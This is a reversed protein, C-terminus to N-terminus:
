FGGSSLHQRLQTGESPQKRAIAGHSYVDNDINLNYETAIKEVIWRLSELQQSTPEDFTKNTSSFRGVVEIGISDDNSPYRNPYKKKVEHHSLNRARSGFSLGKKQILASITENEISGCDGETQCRSQLIGVHWCKQNMKATQYIKGNNEILFHAGSKKGKAYAQLTSNANSSDTRHLVIAAVQNMLGHQISPYIRLEVNKDQIIGDIVWKKINLYKRNRSKRSHGKWHTDPGPFKVHVYEKKNRYGKCSVEMNYHGLPINEFKVIHRPFITDTSEKEYSYRNSLILKVKVNDFGYSSAGADKTIFVELNSVNNNM